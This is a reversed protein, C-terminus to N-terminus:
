LWGSKKFRTWLVLCITAIGALVIFYGYESELEPMHRFNM